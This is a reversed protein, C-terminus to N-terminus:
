LIGSLRLPPSESMASKALRNRLVINNSLRLPQALLRLEASSSDPM